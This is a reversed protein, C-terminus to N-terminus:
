AQRSLSISLLGALENEISVHFAMPVDEPLIALMSCAAAARKIGTSM